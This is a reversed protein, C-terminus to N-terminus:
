KSQKNVHTLFLSTAYDEWGGGEPDGSEPPREQSPLCWTKPFGWCCLVGSHGSVTQQTVITKM